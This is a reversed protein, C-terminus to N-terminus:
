WTPPPVSFPSPPCSPFLPSILLPLSVFFLNIGTGEKSPLQAGQTFYYLWTSLQSVLVDCIRMSHHRDRCRCHGFSGRGKGARNPHCNTTKNTWKAHWSCQGKKINRVSEKLIEYRHAIYKSSFWWESGSGVVWWWGGLDGRWTSRGFEHDRKNEKQLGRLGM